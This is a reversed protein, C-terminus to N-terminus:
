PHGCAAAPGACAVAPGAQAGGSIRPWERKGLWLRMGLGGCGGYGSQLSLKGPQRPLSYGEVKGRWQFHVLAHNDIFMALWEQEAGAKPWPESTVPCDRGEDCMENGSRKPRRLVTVPAEKSKREAAERPSSYVSEM